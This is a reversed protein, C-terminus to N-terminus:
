GVFRVALRELLPRQRWAHCAREAFDRGRESLRYYQACPFGAPNEFEDILGYSALTSFSHWVVGGDVVVNGSGEGTRVMVHGRKLRSLVDVFEGRDPIIRETLM